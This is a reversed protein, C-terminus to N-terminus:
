SAKRLLGTGIDKLISFDRYVSNIYSVIANVILIKLSIWLMQYEVKVGKTQFPDGSNQQFM